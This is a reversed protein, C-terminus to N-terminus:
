LVRKRRSMRIIAVTEAAEQVEQANYENEGLEVLAERLHCLIDQGRGTHRGPWEHNEMALLEIYVQRVKREVSWAM